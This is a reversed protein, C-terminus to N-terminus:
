HINDVGFDAVVKKGQAEVNVHLDYRHVKSIGPLTAEYVDGSKKFVVEKKAKDKPFALHGKAEDKDLKVQKLKADYVYITAKDGKLVLEVKYPLADRLTGGHPAAEIAAEHNHDHGEGAFSPHAMLTAIAFITLLTKM